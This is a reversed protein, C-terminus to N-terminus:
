SCKTPNRSEDSRDPKTQLGAPHEESVAEEQEGQWLLNGGLPRAGMEAVIDRALGKIAADLMDDTMENPDMTKGESAVRPLRRLTPELRCIFAGGRHGVRRSRGPQPEGRRQILRSM